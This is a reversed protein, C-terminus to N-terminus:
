RSSNGDEDLDVLFRNLAAELRPTFPDAGVRMASELQRLEWVFLKMREFSRVDVSVALSGTRPAQAMDDVIGQGGRSTSCM